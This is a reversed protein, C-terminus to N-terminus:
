EETSPLTPIQDRAVELMKIMSNVGEINMTIEYYGMQLSVRNNDTLGIRYCTKPDQEVEPTSEVDYTEKADDLFEKATRKRFFDFM